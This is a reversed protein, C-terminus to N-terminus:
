FWRNVLTYIMGIKYTDPLFSDFHTHVGSFSPKQYVSAIFKGKECIINIDLFIKSSQETEVTFTINVQCSYFYSQFQKLHDSSKFLVLRDDVYWWYYSSRYELPCSDLWIQEHHALFASALSPELPSGM